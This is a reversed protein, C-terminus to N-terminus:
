KNKSFFSIIKNLLGEDEEFAEEYKKEEATTEEEGAYKRYLRLDGQKKYFDALIKAAEKDEDIDYLKQWFEISVFKDDIQEYLKALEIIVNKDKENTNHASQFQMVAEELKNRLKYCYGWNVHANFEDGMGEYVLAKMQFYVPNPKAEKVYEDLVKLTEEFEKKNYHYQALLKLYEIKDEKKPSKKSIEDLIEKAKEDDNQQLYIKAKTMDNQAYELAKECNGLEFYLNSVNDKLVKDDKFKELAQLAINLASEKSGELLYLTILDLYANKEKGDIEIVRMFEDIAKLRKNTMAYLKALKLHPTLESASVNIAKKCDNIAHEFKGQVINLNARTIYYKLKDTDFYLDMLQSYSAVDEPNKSIIENYIEIAKEYNNEELAANAREHLTDINAM